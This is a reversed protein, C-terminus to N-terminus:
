LIHCKDVCRLLTGLVDISNSSLIPTSGPGSSAPTRTDTEPGNSALTADDEGILTPESEPTSASSSALVSPEVMSFPRTRSSSPPPIASSRRSRPYGAESRVPTSSRPTYSSARRPNGSLTSPIASPTTTASAPASPRSVDTTHVVGQVVVLTGPPPFRPESTPVPPLPLPLPIPVQSDQVPQAPMQIGDTTEARVNADANGDQEERFAEPSIVVEDDELIPLGLSQALSGHGGMWTGINSSTARENEIPDPTAVEADPNLPAPIPQARDVLLEEREESNTSSSAVPTELGGSPNESVPLIPERPHEDIEAPAKSWRKLMRWRKRSSQSDTRSLSNDLRNRM